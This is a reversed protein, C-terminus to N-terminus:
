ADMESSIADDYLALYINHMLALFYSADALAVLM